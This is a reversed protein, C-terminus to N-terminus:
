QIRVVGGCDNTVILEGNEICMIEFERVGDMTPVEVKIIESSIALGDIMSATIVKKEAM